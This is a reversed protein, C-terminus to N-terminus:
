GTPGKAAGRLAACSPGPRCGACGGSSRNSMRWRPQAPAARLARFSGRQKMRSAKQSISAPGGDRQLKIRDGRGAYSGLRHIEDLNGVGVVRADRDVPIDAFAVEGAAFAHEDGLALDNEVHQ